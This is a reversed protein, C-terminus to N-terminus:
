IEGLLQAVESSLMKIEQLIENPHRPQEFQYFYRNFNIEYGVKGIGGDKDDTYSHDIVADPAHPLVEKELYAQIDQGLAINEFDELSKDMLVEGNLVAIDAQPNKVALRNQLANLLAKSPKKLLATLKAFFEAFKVAQGHQEKLFAQLVAQDAEKLKGFEKSVYFDSLAQESLVMEARLPQQVKVKRYGFATYDFIKSVASEEFDAYIRTIEDIAHQDIKIRKNGENKRMPSGMNTADILQM